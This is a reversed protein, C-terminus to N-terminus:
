LFASRQVGEGGLGSVGRGPRRLVSGCRPQVRPGRDMGTRGHPLTPLDTNHLTNTQILQITDRPHSYSTYNLFRVQSAEEAMSQVQDLLQEAIHPSDSLAVQFLCRMYKALKSSDLSELSWAENIIKKLNTVLVQPPNINTGLITIIYRGHNVDVSRTYAGTVIVHM